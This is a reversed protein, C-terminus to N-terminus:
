DDVLDFALRAAGVIGADERLATVELRVPRRRQRSTMDALHDRAVGLFPEGATVAGGGLVVVEPDFLNVLNSLGVALARGAVALVERATEDYERAARSVHEGTVAEPSGAFAVMSSSPDRTAAERGMRGIAGGSAYQELCGRLGCPCRRGGLDVVMHGAESGAGTLGRVLKGDAVIGSGIGTGLTLMVVHDSGQAVGFAREGWVAANADNDVAVPLASRSRLVQGLHPDDYMVNPSFTVSGAVFDVFGAAGVGAAVPTVGVEGARELLDDLVSIIGKTTATPDTPRETRLLVEGSPSVLAAKTSTGGVDIGVAARAGRAESGWTTM